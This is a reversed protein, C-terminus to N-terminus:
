VVSNRSILIEGKRKEKCAVVYCRAINKATKYFGSKLAPAIGNCLMFTKRTQQFFLKETFHQLIAFWM